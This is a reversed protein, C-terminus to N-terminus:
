HKKLIIKSRIVSACPGFIEERASRMNPKANLFLAPRQFYGDTLGNVREGGRVDCCEQVALAVYSLNSQLQDESAVPGIQSSLELAPGVRM